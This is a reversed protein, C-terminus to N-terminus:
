GGTGAYLINSNTPDMALVGISLTSEQAFQQSWSNGGNTTKFIGANPTGVYIINSNNPDVVISNIRGGINHPGEQRWPTNQNRYKKAYYKAKTVAYKYTAQGEDGAPFNRNLFYEDAPRLYKSKPTKTEAEPICFLGITLICFASLTLLKSM